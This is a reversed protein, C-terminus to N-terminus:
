IINDISGKGENDFITNRTKNYEKMENLDNM